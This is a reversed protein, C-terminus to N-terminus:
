AFTVLLASFDDDLSGPRAAARVATYIAGTLAVGPMGCQRMLQRLDDLQWQRGDPALIEFSGDSVIFLQAGPPMFAAGVQWKGSLLMGIAPSRRWLPAPEPQESHRSLGPSPRRRLTNAVNAAHMALGIGHGSVDLLFGSYITESLFQYGFADGGLTASPAFCWETRVPGDLIPQPLIARVFDEARKLDASHEDERVIEARDRRPTDTVVVRPQGQRHMSERLLPRAADADPRKQVPIERVDGRDVVPRWLWHSQGGSTIVM